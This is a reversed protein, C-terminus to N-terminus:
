IHPKQSQVHGFSKHMFKFDLHEPSEYLRMFPECVNNKYNFSTCPSRSSNTLSRM